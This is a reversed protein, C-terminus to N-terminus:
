HATVHVEYVVQHMAQGIARSLAATPLRDAIALSLTDAMTRLPKMSQLPLARGVIDGVTSISRQVRLADVLQQLGAAYEEQGSGGVVVLHQYLILDDNALRIEKRRKDIEVVEGVMVFLEDSIPTYPLVIQDGELMDERLQYVRPFAQASDTQDMLIVEAHLVRPTKALPHDAVTGIIVVKQLEM